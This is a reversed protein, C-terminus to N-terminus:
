NFMVEILFLNSVSSSITFDNSIKRIESDFNSLVKRNILETYPTIFNRLRSRLRKSPPKINCTLSFIEHLGKVSWGINKQGQISPMQVEDVYGDTAVRLFKCVM